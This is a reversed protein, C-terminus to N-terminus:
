RGKKQKTRSKELKMCSISRKTLILNSSKTHEQFCAGRGGGGGGREPDSKEMYQLLRWEAIWTSHQFSFLFGTCGRMIVVTWLSRHETLFLSGM